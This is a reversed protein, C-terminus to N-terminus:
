ISHLSLVLLKHLFEGLELIFLLSDALFDLLAASEEKVELGFQIAPHLAGVAKALAHGVENAIDEDRRTHQGVDAEEIM